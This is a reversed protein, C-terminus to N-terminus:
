TGSICQADESAVNCGDLKCFPEPVTWQMVRTETNYYWKRGDAKVYKKWVGETRHGPYGHPPWPCPPSDHSASARSREAELSERSAMM